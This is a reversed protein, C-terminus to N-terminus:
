AARPQAAPAAKPVSAHALGLMKSYRHLGIDLFRLNNKKWCKLIERLEAMDHGRLAKDLSPRISTSYDHRLQDLEDTEAEDFAEQLQNKTLQAIFYGDHEIGEVLESLEACGDATAAETRWHSVKRSYPEILEHRVRSALALNAALAVPARATRLWSDQVQESFTVDITMRDNEYIRYIELEPRYLKGDVALFRGTLQQFDDGRKLASVIDELQKTWRRNFGDPDKKHVVKKGIKGWTWQKSDPPKRGLGFLKRLSEKDSEIGMDPDLSSAGPPLHLQIYKNIYEVNSVRGSQVRNIDDAIDRAIPRLDDETLGENLPEATLSFGEDQFLRTLLDLIAPETAKVGQIDGLQDPPCERSDAYICIIRRRDEEELSEFLGAEYLPWDFDDEAPNTLVLFFINAQSLEKRITDRWKAGPEIKAADFFKLRKPAWNM